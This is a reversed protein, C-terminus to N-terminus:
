LVMARTRGGIGHTEEGVKLRYVEDVLAIMGIIEKDLNRPDQLEGPLSANVMARCYEKSGHGWDTLGGNVWVSWTWTSKIGRETLEKELEEYLEDKAKEEDFMHPIDNLMLKAMFTFWALTFVQQMM